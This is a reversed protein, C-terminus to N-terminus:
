CTADARARPVLEDYSVARRPRARRLLAEIARRHSRREFDAPHIDIRMLPGPHRGAAGVLAPSTLRKLTTSSGLCLALSRIQSEGRLHVGSLGAWWDFSRGLVRRLAPSYAYAPAVFGRAELGAEALIERGRGVAAESERTGLGAFEAGHGGRLHALLSSPGRVRGRRAHELGHQAIADGRAM